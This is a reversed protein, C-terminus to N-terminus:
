LEGNFARAQLSAFLADLEALHARLRTKQREVSEVATAFRRQLDVPPVLVPFGKLQTMNISAIGTTQKASRLFYRKGRDSGVIWNLFAPVIDRSRLRVRFVHNQHICEPIESNWLSGRGLKDPDGGETLLLDGRALAYKAIEVETAAITKITDLKLHRDQVNAVALYPVDRLATGNTKRGKTVGSVIHAIEDLRVDNKWGRPNTVPDGFMELFTSQLLTDLQAISERRKARLADAADLIAAIRKQEPIPPLPIRESRIDSLKISPYATNAILRAPSNREFWRLLFRPEMKPGCEIAALHNVVYSAGRLQYVLGKTCSMGSKAFVVAGKPFLRMRRKKAEAEPILELHSELAGRLLSVLSRARIFPKGSEGFSSSEQPAGDGSTVKAVSAIDVAAWSM